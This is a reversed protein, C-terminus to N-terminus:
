SLADSGSRGGGPERPSPVLAQPPEAGLGTSVGGRGGDGGQVPLKMFVGRANQGHLCLDSRQQLHVSVKYSVLLVCFM